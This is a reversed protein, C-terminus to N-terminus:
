WFLSVGARFLGGGGTNTVRGLGDTFEPEQAARADTRGRIFGLFDLTLAIRRDLPIDLGIGGHAGFYGYSRDVGDVDVSAASSNLGFLAYSRVAPHRSFYLLTSFSFTLEGRDNGHYDTGLLSDLGVDLTLVPNVVYRLSVGVGGMGTDRHRRSEGLVVGELRLNVSWPSLEPKESESEDKARAEPSSLVISTSSDSPEDSTWTRDRPPRPEDAPEPPVETSGPESEPPASPREAEDCFWEDPPCGEPEAASSVSSCLGLVLAPVVPSIAWRISPIAASARRRAM